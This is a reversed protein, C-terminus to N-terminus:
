ILLLTLSSLGYSLLEPDWGCCHLPDPFGEKPLNEKIHYCSHTSLVLIRKLNLNVVQKM